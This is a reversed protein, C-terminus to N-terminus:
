GEEDTFDDYESRTGIEGVLNTPLLEKAKAADYNGLLWGLKVYATETTMDECYIAGASSILRLNRYVSSNVRGYTCQSTIGIVMGSDAAEKIKPLWLYEPHSTSVPAHGLGTGEIIVGKYKKGLYFDMIDPESDPYAKVIAVKPEFKTQAHVEKSDPQVQHYQSNYRINGDRSIYALPKGNIARFADRRSTHMKKVKTGRTYACEDDSSTNHMCVGVEAINSQAAAYVSCILNIFADSSGRDSSRQSGTLVVPANIGQLMFSLAASTYHMTDTGHTIVVGRAGKNLANATEEAIKQWELYSMDESAISFLPEIDINAINSVEPVDFLLEEPKTLMYVGGTKYDIRSGITGGTYIMSIRPLDKQETLKVKPFEIPTNSSELKELKVKSFSIGINYGNKLKIILIDPDNYETSPMLEGEIAAGSYSIRVKDGISIGNAKLYETIKNGYM